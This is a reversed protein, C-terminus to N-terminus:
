DESKAPPLYRSVIVLDYGEKMKNILEPIKEPLSNGDPTFMIIIDGEAVDMTEVLINEVGPRKQLHVRYGHERCYEVTGDTSHGDVVVIEDVWERNIQPMIVRMGEIENLSFVVLSVKM